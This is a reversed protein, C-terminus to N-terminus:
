TKLFTIWEALRQRKILSTLGSVDLTIISLSPSIQLMQININWMKHTKPKEM